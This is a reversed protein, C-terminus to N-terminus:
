IEFKVDEDKEVKKLSVIKAMKKESDQIDSVVPHIVGCASRFELGTPKEIIRYGSMTWLNKLRQTITM